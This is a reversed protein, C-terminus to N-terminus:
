LGRFQGAVGHDSVQAHGSAHGIAQGHQQITNFIQEFAQNIQLHCAQYADSGQAQWVGALSNLVNIAAQRQENLFHVMNTQATVHQAMLGHDYLMQDM